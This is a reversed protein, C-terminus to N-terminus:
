ALRFLCIQIAPLCANLQSVEGRPSPKALRSGTFVRDSSGARKLFEGTVLSSVPIKKAAFTTYRAAQKQENMVSRYQARAERM